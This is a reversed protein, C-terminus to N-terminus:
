RIQTVGVARSTGGVRMKFSGGSRFILVDPMYAYHYEYHYDNQQWVQGNMLKVLTEGEWGSFEGDIRSEIANSSPTVPSLPLTSHYPVSPTEAAVAGVVALGILTGFAEANEREKAEQAALLDAHPIETNMKRLERIADQHGWRAALNLWSVAAHEHGLQLQVRALNVMALLYNQQAAKLYWTGAENLNKPTSGLGNEWLVGLNNQAAPDGRFAAKNWHGAAIDYQGKNYADLGMKVSSCASLTVIALALILNKM